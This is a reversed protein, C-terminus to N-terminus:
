KMVTYIMTIRLIENTAKISKILRQITMANIIMSIGLLLLTISQILDTM